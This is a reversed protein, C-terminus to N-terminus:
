ATLHRDPKQTRGSMPDFQPCKHATKMGNCIVTSSLLSSALRVVKLLSITVNWQHMSGLSCAIGRYSLDKSEGTLQNTRLNALKCRPEVQTTVNQHEISKIVNTLGAKRVNLSCGSAM